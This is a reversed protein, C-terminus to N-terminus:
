LLITYSVIDFGKSFGLLAMDVVMVADVMEAVESYVLFMQDEISRAKRFGFRLPSLLNNSELYDVLRAVVIRGM